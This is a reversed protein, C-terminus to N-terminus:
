PKPKKALILARLQGQRWGTPPLVKLAENAKDFGKNEDFLVGWLDLAAQQIPQNKSKIGETAAMIAKDDFASDKKILIKLSNVLARYLDSPPSLGIVPYNKAEETVVPIAEEFGQNEEFSARWLELAKQQQDQPKSRKIWETAVPIVEKFGQGKKFLGKWLGLAKQQDQPDSSNGLSIAIQKIEDFSKGEGILIEVAKIPSTIPVTSVSGGLESLIPTVRDTYYKFARNKETQPVDKNYNEKNISYYYPCNKGFRPDNLMKFIFVMSSIFYSSGTDSLRSSLTLVRDKFQDKETKIKQLEVFPLFWNIRNKRLSLDIIASNILLHPTAKGGVLDYLKELYRAGSIGRQAATKDTDFSIDACRVIIKIANEIEEKYSKETIKWEFKSTMHEAVNESVTLDLLYSAIEVYDSMREWRNEENDGYFIVKIFTAKQLNDYKIQLVISHTRLPVNYTFIISNKVFDYSLFNVASLPVVISVFMKAKAMGLVKAPLQSLENMIDRLWVPLKLSAVSPFVDQCALSLVNILSQHIFTFADEYTKPAYRLFDRKQKGLATIQVNFDKSNDLQKEYDSTVKTSLIKQVDGLDDKQTRFIVTTVSIISVGGSPTTKLNTLDIWCDLFGFYVNLMSQFKEIKEEIKFETSGKLAKIAKDWLDVLKEMLSLAAKKYLSTGANFNVLYTASSFFDAIEPKFFDFSKKFSKSDKFKETDFTNLLWNRKGLLAKLLSASDELEKYASKLLVITPGVNEYQSVFDTNIWMATIDFERLSKFLSKLNEVYKEETPINKLGVIAAVFQMWNNEVEETLALDQGEIMIFLIEKELKDIISEKGPFLSKLKIKLEELKKREELITKISYVDVRRPDKLQVLIATFFSIPYLVELSKLSKGAALSINIERELSTAMSYIRRIQELREPDTEEFMMTHIKDVISAVTKRYLQEDIVSTKLEELLKPIDKEPAIQERPGIYAKEETITVMTPIPYKLWGPTIKIEDPDAKAIMERQSDVYLSIPEQDLWQEIKEIEPVILIAKGAGRFTAAAHSTPEANGKVIVASVSTPYGGARYFSLAEELTTATIVQKKDTIHKVGSGAASVVECPIKNEEKMAEPKEIYSVSVSDKIQLPRAQVLWIIKEGPDYVLEIDMAEGYYKDITKAIKDIGNIEDDRLAPDNKIKEPNEKLLLEYPVKYIPVFRQNKIRLVKRIITESYSKVYYTDIDVSSTVVGENHGFAAQIITMKEKSEPNRTYVVCGVPINKEDTEGIMRQLLVPTLPQDFIKKDKGDIRQVLSKEQFYSAIVKKIAEVIANLEPSVNPESHNGGANPLEKTDERGTSRVMLRWKKADQLFKQLKETRALLIQSNVVNLALIKGALKESESTFKKANTEDALFILQDKRQPNITQILNEWEKTIDIGNVKFFEKIVDSSIGLFEPVKVQIGDLKGEEINGIVNKLEMLNATKYGYGVNEANGSLREESFFAEPKLERKKEKILEKIYYNIALIILRLWGLSKKVLECTDKVDKVPTQADFISLNELYQQLADLSNKTTSFLLKLKDLSSLTIEPKLEERRIQKYVGKIVEEAEDSTLEEKVASLNLSSISLILFLFKLINKFWFKSSFKNIKSL